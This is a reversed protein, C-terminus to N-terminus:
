QLPKSMHVLLYDGEAACRAGVLVANARNAVALLAKAQQLGWDEKLPVAKWFAAGTQYTHGVRRLRQHTVKGRAKNFHM